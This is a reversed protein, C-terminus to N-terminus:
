TDAVLSLDKLNKELLSYHDLHQSVRAVKHNLDVIGLGLIGPQLGKIITRVAPIGIRSHTLDKIIIECGKAEVINAILEIDELVDSNMYSAIGDFSITNGKDSIGSFFKYINNPLYDLKRISFLSNEIGFLTNARSQALETLTRLLAIKKDPHVGVATYFAHSDPYTGKVNYGFVSIAPIKFSGTLYNFILRVGEAQFKDIIKRLFSDRISEPKIIPVKLRNWYIVDQIHREVEEYLAHSIAEEINNGAALGTTDSFDDKCWDSKFFVLNAPVFVNKKKTLNFCKTWPLVQKDIATKSYIKRQLNCPVFDWRSIAAKQRIAKFDSFIIEKKRAFSDSASYREVREMLGSVYALDNTLGKGWSPLPANNFKNSHMVAYVPIGVKDFREIRVAKSYIPLRSQKIKKLVFEKTKKPDVIRHSGFYFTKPSNKLRM